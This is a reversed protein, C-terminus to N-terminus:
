VGFQKLAERNLQVGMGPTTPIRLMGDADPRFPTTILDEM